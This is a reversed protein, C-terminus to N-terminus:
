VEEQELQEGGMEGGMEPTPAASLDKALQNAKDEDMLMEKSLFLAMSQESLGLEKLSALVTVTMSAANVAALKTSQTEAELASISGYFTVDWPKDKESFFLGYKQAVHVTIIQDFFGELATRIFRAREAAQASTRFFGGDGLGGSLMDAYGVMSMDVGLSATVQRAYFYVDEMPITSARGNQGNLMPEVTVSGKDGWTPLIHYLIGLFAKGAEKAQEKIQKSKIFISSLANKFKKGQEESLNQMDARIFFESVSDNWRQGDVATLVSQMKDYAEEADILLSGGVLSQLFPVETPDDQQMSTYYSKDLVEIQPLFTTRPMKFRAMQMVTLKEQINKGTKVEYYANEGMEEVALVLEPRLLEDSYLRTVGDKEKSYIRCFADGYICGTYAVGYAVKNLMPTLDAKIEELLDATAKDTKKTKRSEIFVVDGTSEHGGLASTVLIKVASSILANHSMQTFKNYIDIRQRAPNAPDSILDEAYGNLDTYDARVMESQKQPLERGFISKFGDFFGQKKNSNAMFCLREKTL